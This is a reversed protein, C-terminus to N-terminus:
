LDMSIALVATESSIFLSMLIARLPFVVSGNVLQVENLKFGASLLKAQAQRLSSNDAVDPIVSLPM